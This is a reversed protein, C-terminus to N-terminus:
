VIFNKLEYSLLLSAFSPYILGKKHIFSSDLEQFFLIEEENFGGEPGFILLNRKQNTREVTKIQITHFVFLNYDEIASKLFNQFNLVEVLKPKYINQSLELSRIQISELRCFNIKYKLSRNSFSLYIKSIPFLTSLEIFKELYNKDPVCLLVDFSDQNFNQAFFLNESITEIQECNIKFNKNNKDIDLIQIKQTSGNLDTLIFEEGKKPRLSVLHPLNIFNITNQSLKFLSQKYIYSM